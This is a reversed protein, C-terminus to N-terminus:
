IQHASPLNKRGVSLLTTKYQIANCQMANCQITNYQIAYICYLQKIEYWSCLACNWIAIQLMPLYICSLLCLYLLFALAVSRYLNFTVPSPSLIWLLPGWWQSLRVPLPRWIVCDARTSATCSQLSPCSSLATPWGMARLVGVNEQVGLLAVKWHVDSYCIFMMISTTLKKRAPNVFSHYLFSSTMM